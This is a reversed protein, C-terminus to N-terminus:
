STSKKREPILILLLITVVALPATIFSPWGTFIVSGRQIALIILGAWDMTYLFGLGLFTLLSGVMAYGIVSWFGWVTVALALWFMGMQVMDFLPVLSTETHPYGSLIAKDLAYLLYTGWVLVFLRMSPGGHWEPHTTRWGGGSVFVVVPSIISITVCAVLVFGGIITDWAAIGYMFLALYTIASIVITKIKM